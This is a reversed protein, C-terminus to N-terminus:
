MLGLTGCGQVGAGLIANETGRVAAGVPGHYVRTEGVLSDGGKGDVGEHWRGQISTGIVITDETGRVASAVPCRNVLSDGTKGNVGLSGGRQIGATTTDKAGCVVSVVPCRYVGTEGM